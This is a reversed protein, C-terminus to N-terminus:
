RARIVGESDSAQRVGLVDLLMTSEAIIATRIAPKYDPAWLPSHPGPLIAGSQQAAAFVAPEVAGVVIMLSPIGALHFEAFDEFVMKAPMEMVNRSGLVNGLAGAMRSTLAPDNFLANAAPKVTVLPEKPAGSAWAEGKAIREISALVRKRVEPRYTRVTLFLKVEDPIVNNQTGGQFSGVTVVAADRPGNERSVITQLAMVTKAGIVIPDVTTEPQAAHGGRGFITIEVADATAWAYGPTYGVQGAPLREDDHIAFAFGPKPFRTLLGDRIMASAGTGIEEAPQGIMILTGRWRERNQAMLRATGYWSSMHVDHGCAHMVPVLAGSDGQTTVKSAYSLGTKEEVPLADMDTRLLVSPGEGNRMIAVVGYGGVGTTVEYDSARMRDALKGSTQRECLSLEPHRHLDLYLEEVEPFVADLQENSPAAWLAPGAESFTLPSSV